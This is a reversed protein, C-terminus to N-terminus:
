SKKYKNDKWQNTRNESERILERLRKQRTVETKASM